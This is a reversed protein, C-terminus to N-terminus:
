LAAIVRLNRLFGPIVPFPFFIGSWNCGIDGDLRYIGRACWNGGKGGVRAVEHGQLVFHGRLRLLGFFWLSSGAFFNGGCGAAWGHSQDAGDRLLVAVDIGASPEQPLGNGGRCRVSGDGCLNQVKGVIGM